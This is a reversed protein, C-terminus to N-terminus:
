LQGNVFRSSGGTRARPRNIVGGEPKLLQQQLPISPVGNSGDGASCRDCIKSSEQMKLEAVENRLSRIENELDWVRKQWMKNTNDLHEQLVKITTTTEGSDNVVHHSSGLNSSTLFAPPASQQDVSFRPENDGNNGGSFDANFLTSVPRLKLAPFDSVNPPASQPAASDNFTGAFHGRPSIQAPSSGTSISLSHPPTRKSSVGPRSTSDTSLDSLHNQSGHQAIAELLSPSLSPVPIRHSSLKPNYRPTLTSTTTEAQQPLSPVSPPQPVPPADKEDVRGGGFLRMFGSKKHKLSKGPATNAEKSSTQSAVLGNESGRREPQRIFSQLTNKAKAGASISRTRARAAALESRNADSFASGLATSADQACNHVATVTSSDGSSSSSHSPPPQISAARMRQARAEELSILSFGPKINRDTWGPISNAGPSLASAPEDFQPRIPSEPSLVSVPSSIDKGQIHSIRQKFLTATELTPASKTLSKTPISALSEVVTTNSDKRAPGQYPPNVLIPSKPQPPESYSVLDPNAYPHIGKAPRRESMASLGAQIDLTTSTTDCSARPSPPTVSSHENSPLRIASGDLSSPMDVNTSHSQPRGFPFKGRPADQRGSHHSRGLSSTSLSEQALAYLAGRPHTASTATDFSRKSNLFSRSSEVSPRSTATSPRSSSFAGTKHAKGRSGTFMGIFSGHGTSETEDAEQFTEEELEWPARSHFRMKPGLYSMRPLSDEDSDDDLSRKDDQPDHDYAGSLVMSSRVDEGLDLVSSSPDDFPRRLLHHSTPSNFPYDDTTVADAHPEDTQRPSFFARSYVSPSDSAESYTSYRGLPDARASREDLLQRLRVDNTDPSHMARLM